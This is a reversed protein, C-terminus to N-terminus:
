KGDSSSNPAALASRIKPARKWPSASLRPYEMVNTSTVSHSETPRLRTPNDFAFHSCFMPLMPVQSGAASSM